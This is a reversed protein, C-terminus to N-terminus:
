STSRAHVTLFLHIVPESNYTTSPVHRHLIGWTLELAYHAVSENTSKPAIYIRKNIDNAEGSITKKM